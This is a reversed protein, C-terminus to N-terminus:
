RNAAASWEATEAAADSARHADALVDLGSGTSLWARPDSRKIKKSPTYTLDRM